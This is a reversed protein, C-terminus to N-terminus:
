DDLHKAGIINDLYHKAKETKGKLVRKAWHGLQNLKEQRKPCNCPRGLWSSVREPTIGIKALANHLDDGLGNSDTM